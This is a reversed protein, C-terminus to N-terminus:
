ADFRNTKFDDVVRADADAAARAVHYRRMPARAREIYDATFDPGLYAGHGFITGFQMLGYKQFVLQGQFVDDATFIVAGDPAVTAGPVPPHEGYVRYGLYGLIAFGVVFTLIAVQIWARSVALPARMKQM